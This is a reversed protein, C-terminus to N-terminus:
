ESKTVTEPLIETEFATIFAGIAVDGEAAGIQHPRQIQREAAGPKFGKGIATTQHHRALRRVVTTERAPRRAEAGVGSQDIVDCGDQPYARSIAELRRQCAHRRFGDTEDVAKSAAADGLGSSAGLHAMLRSLPSASFRSSFASGCAM